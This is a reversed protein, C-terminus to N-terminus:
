LLDIVLKYQSDTNLINLDVKPNTPAAKLYYTGKRYNTYVRESKQDKENEFDNERM